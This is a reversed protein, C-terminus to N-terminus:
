HSFSLSTNDDNSSLFMFGVLNFFHFSVSIEMNKIIHYSHKALFSVKFMKIEM